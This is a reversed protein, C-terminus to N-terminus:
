DLPFGYFAALRKGTRDAYVARPIAWEKSGKGRLRAFTAYIGPRLGGALDVPVEVPQPTDDRTVMGEDHCVERYSVRGDLLIREIKDTEVCRQSRVQTKVKAFTVHVDKGAKRVSAIVAGYRGDDGRNRHVDRIDLVALYRPDSPRQDGLRSLADVTAFYAAMRPATILLEKWAPDRARRAVIAEIRATTLRASALSELLIVRAYRNGRCPAADLERLAADASVQHFDFQDVAYGLIADPEGDALEKWQRSLM